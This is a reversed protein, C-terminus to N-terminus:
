LRTVGRRLALVPLGKLGSHYCVRVEGIVGLVDYGKALLFSPVSQQGSGGSGGGAASPATGAGQQQQQQTAATQQNGHNQHASQPATPRGRAALGTKPPAM